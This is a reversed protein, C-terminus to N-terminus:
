NIYGPNQILLDPFLEVDARPIPYTYLYKETVYKKGNAAIWFEPRGNRKLEFWRDGELFLEMRRECLIASILKSLPAGTADVTINQKAVEPLNDMTYAIYDQTIRKSRLLNLYKLAETTNNLHAYSEAIILCLEESRFKTTVKKIPIRQANFSNAKRIDNPSSNFLQVLEKSVPRQIVNSQAVVYSLSGIDNENTYSAIIVNKGKSLKQNINDAYEEAELMPYQELVEKAYIIANEWDQTWFFFRAMFAKTVQATFLYDKDTVNYLLANRFGKLIFEATEKQNSREPKAEMDFEDVLPLGLTETATEPQYPECFSQLLHYSCISRLSWATGLINKAMESETDEMNSINVNCDKIVSYLEPYRKQNTNIRSGVYLQTNVLSSALTGDLDEAFFELLSTYDPEPIITANAGKEIEDLWYHLITSYEEATKPIIKGKPKVDLYNNCSTLIFLLSCCTLILQKIKM